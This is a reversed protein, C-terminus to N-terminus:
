RGARLAATTADRMAQISLGRRACLRLLRPLHGDGPLLAVTALLTGAMAMPGADINLGARAGVKNAGDRTAIRALQSATLQRVATCASRAAGFAAREILHRAAPHTVARGAIRTNPPSSSRRFLVAAPAIAGARRVAAPDAGMVSGAAKM